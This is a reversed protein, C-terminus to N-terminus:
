KELMELIVEKPVAGLNSATVKGGKMVVLTPISSVGFRAALEGEEDVDVKCVKIDGREEAISDVIPSVMRCARNWVAKNMKWIDTAEITKPM